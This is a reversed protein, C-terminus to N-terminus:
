WSYVLEGEVQDNRSYRGFLSQSLGTLKIATIGTKWSDTLVYWANAPVAFITKIRPRNRFTYLEVDM